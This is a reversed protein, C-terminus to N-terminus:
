TQGVKFRNWPDYMDYAYSMRDRPSAHKARLKDLGVIKMSEGISRYTWCHRVVYQETFQRVRLKKWVSQCDSRCFSLLLVFLFLIRRRTCCLTFLAVITGRQHFQPAQQSGKPWSTLCASAWPLLGKIHLDQISHVTVVITVDGHDAGMALVKQCLRQVPYHYVFGVKLTAAPGINM